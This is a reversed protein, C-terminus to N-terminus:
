LLCEQSSFVRNIFSSNIVSGQFEEPGEVVAEQSRGRREVSRSFVYRVATFVDGEGLSYDANACHM